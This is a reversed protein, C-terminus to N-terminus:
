MAGLCQILSAAAPAARLCAEADALLACSSMTVTRTMVTRNRRSEHGAGRAHASAGDDNHTAQAERAERADIVSADSGIVAPSSSRRFLAGVM